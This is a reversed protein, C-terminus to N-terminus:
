NPADGTTPSHLWGRLRTTVWPLVWYAMLPTLVSTTILVKLATPLDNWGPLWATVLLTFALNVPFFGLWISAAQKWRPPAPAVVPIPGTAEPSVDPVPEDFWGEIGTRKQVRTDLIMGHGEELWDLRETSDDWAHLTDRDSFRYLMLWQHSDNHLRIWGSGLFGPYKNAKNVGAQVWRTVTDIHEPLVTRVISVTVPEHSM